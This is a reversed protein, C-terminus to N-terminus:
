ISFPELRFLKRDKDQIALQKRLYVAKNAAEWADDKARKRPEMRWAWNSNFWLVRFPLLPLRFIAPHQKPLQPPFSLPAFPTRNQDEEKPRDWQGDHDQGIAKNGRCRVHSSFPESPSTHQICSARTFGHHHDDHLYHGPSQNGTTMTIDQARDTRL